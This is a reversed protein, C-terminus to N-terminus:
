ELSSYIYDKKAELRKLEGWFKTVEVTILDWISHQTSQLVAKGKLRDKLRTNSDQYEKNKKELAKKEEKLTIIEKEKLSVQSLSRTIEKIDVLQSAIPVIKVVVKNM